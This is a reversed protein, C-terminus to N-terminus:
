QKKVLTCDKLMHTGGYNMNKVFVPEPCEKATKHIQGDLGYFYEVILIEEQNFVTYEDRIKNPLSM